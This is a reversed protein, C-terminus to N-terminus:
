RCVKKKGSFSCKTLNNEWIRCFRSMYLWFVCLILSFFIVEVSRYSHRYVCCYVCVRLLLSKICHELHGSHIEFLIFTERKYKQPIKCYIKVVKQGLHISAEDSEEEEPESGEEEEESEDKKRKKASGRTGGRAGNKAKKASGGAAAKRKKPKEDEEPQWDEESDGVEEEEESDPLNNTVAETRNRM